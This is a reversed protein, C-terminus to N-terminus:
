VSEWKGGIAFFQDGNNNLKSLIGGVVFTSGDEHQWNVTGNSVCESFAKIIKTPNNTKLEMTELHSYDTM